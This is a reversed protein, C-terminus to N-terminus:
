GNRGIGELAAAADDCVQEASKGHTDVSIDARRYNSERDRMLRAIREMPNATNLLPRESLEGARAAVDEPSVTLRLITGSSSMLRMNEERMVIGGGTAVVIGSAKALSKLCETELSRFYEEGSAAFIEPITRGDAAVVLADTDAFDMSLRAALLKGVATKGSCMFGIIYVNKKEPGTGAAAMEIGAKGDM